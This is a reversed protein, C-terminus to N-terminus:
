HRGRHQAYVLLKYLQFLSLQRPHAALHQRLTPLLSAPVLKLIWQWRNYISPIRAIEDIAAATSLRALNTMAQETQDLFEANTVLHDNMVPNDIHLIRIGMKQLTLSFMSDEYGYGRITEDFPWQKLVSKSAVFNNSQFYRYPDASRITAPASEVSVGYQWRLQYEPSPSTPPYNRGGYLLTDGDLQAIYHTLFQDHVPLVDCDLFLLHDHRAIAAFRNRIAARGINQPLQVFIDALIAHQTNIHQFDESSGDDILIIEAQAGANIQARLAKVLAGIDFNFIPICISVM